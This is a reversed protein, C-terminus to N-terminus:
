NNPCSMIESFAITALLILWLKEFVRFFCYICQDLPHQLPYLVGYLYNNNLGVLCKPYNM